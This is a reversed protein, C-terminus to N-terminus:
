EDKKDENYQAIVRKATDWCDPCYLNVKGEGERVVVSWTLAMPKSKKDFPKLCTLCNDPMKDFLDMKDEFGKTKTKTKKQKKDHARRQARNM